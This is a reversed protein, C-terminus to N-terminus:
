IFCYTFTASGANFNATGINTYRIQASGASLTNVSFLLFRQQANIEPGGSVMLQFDTFNQLFTFNELQVTNSAGPALPNTINQITVQGVPENVEVTNGEDVSYFGVPRSIYPTNIGEIGMTVPQINDVSLNNNVSLNEVIMDEVTLDNVKLEDVKADLWSKTGSSAFDSTLNSISM